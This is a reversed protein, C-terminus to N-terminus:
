QAVFSGLVTVPNEYSGFRVHEVMIGSYLKGVELYVTKPERPAATINNDEFDVETKCYYENLDNGTMVVFSCKTVIEGPHGIGHELMSQNYEDLFEYSIDYYEGINSSVNKTIIGIEFYKTDPAVTLYGSNGGTQEDIYDNITSCSTLGISLSGLLLLFFLAKIYRM